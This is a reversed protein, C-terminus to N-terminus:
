LLSRLWSLGFTGLTLAVIALVLVIALATLRCGWLRRVYGKGKAFAAQISPVDALPSSHVLSLDRLVLTLEPISSHSLRLAEFAVGTIDAQLGTLPLRFTQGQSTGILATENLGSELTIHAPARGKELSPHFAEGNPSLTSPAAALDDNM